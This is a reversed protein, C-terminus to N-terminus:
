SSCSCGCDCGGGGLGVAGVVVAGFGLGFGWPAIREELGEVGLTEVGLTLGNTGSVEAEVVHTSANM